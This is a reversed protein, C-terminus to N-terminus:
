PRADDMVNLPEDGDGALTTCLLRAPREASLNRFYAVRAEQPELTVGGADVQTEPAAGIRTAFAGEAIICVVPARHHHAPMAQGPAFDVRTVLVHDVRKSPALRIDGLPIRTPTTGTASAAARHLEGTAIPAFDAKGPARIGFWVKLGDAGSAEYRLRFVPAGPPAISTFEVSKGDVAVAPGYHIVHGEGDVYDAKVAGGEEYVTMLQGFSEKLKGAKDYTENHDNRLLAKGNAEVSIVSVGRARGGTEQVAGAGEWKGVLFELPKLAGDLTAARAFQPAATMAVILLILGRVDM